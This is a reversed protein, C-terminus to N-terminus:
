HKIQIRYKLYPPNIKPDRMVTNNPLKFTPKVLQLLSDSLIQQYDVFVKFSNESFKGYYNLPIKYSLSVSSPSLVVKEIDKPLGRVQVNVQQVEETYQAVLVKMKVMPQSLTIREPFPNILDLEREFNNNINHLTLPETEIFKVLNVWKAAGSIQVMRPSLYNSELAAFSSAYGLFGKHKIPVTKYIRDSFFLNLEEPSLSKYEVQAGFQQSPPLFQRLKLNGNKDVQSANLQLDPMSAYLQRLQWGNGSVQLKVRPPLVQESVKGVPLNVLKIPIQIVQQYENSMKFSFWLLLSLSLSLFISWGQNPKKASGFRKSPLFQAVWFRIKLLIDNLLM